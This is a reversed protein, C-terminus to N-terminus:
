CPYTVLVLIVVQIWPSSGPSDSTYPKIQTGNIEESVICPLSVLFPIKNASSSFVQQFVLQVNYRLRKTSM